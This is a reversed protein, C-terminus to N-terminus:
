PTDNEINMANPETTISEVVTPTIVQTEQTAIVPPLEKKPEQKVVKEIPASIPRSPISSMEQLAQELNMETLRFLLRIACNGVCGAEAM